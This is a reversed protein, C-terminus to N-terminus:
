SYELNVELENVTGLLLDPIEEEFRQGSMRHAPGALGFAGAVQGSALTVPVGIARVGTMFEEDNVAYGRERVTELEAKLTDRDTITQDTSASVGRRELIEEIRSTPFQSLIAKGAALQHLPHRRGIQTVTRVGHKGEAKHLFIGVGQEEVLFQALEGTEEALEEVLQEAMRNAEKRQKTYEGLELFKLGIQYEGGENVVYGYERLTSLHGHVTSNAMELYDALEEIRAGDLEHLAEIVELSNATTQLRRGSTREWTM